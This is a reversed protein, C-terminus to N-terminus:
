RLDIRYLKEDKVALYEVSGDRAFSLKRTIVNDFLPGLLDNVVPGEKDDRVVVYGDIKKGAYAVHNGDASFVPTFSNADDPVLNELMPGHQGEFFVIYGKVPGDPLKDRTLVILKGSKPAFYAKVVEYNSQKYEKGDVFLLKSKENQALYAFRKSDDSWFPGSELQANIAPSEKGDTVVAFSYQDIAKVYSLRQGDPSFFPVKFPDNQSFSNFGEGAHDNDVFGGMGNTTAAFYALRNGVPAFTLSRVEYLPPGEKGDRVVIQAEFGYRSDDVKAVFAVSTGDASFIPGQVINRYSQSPKGDVFVVQKGDVQAVYAYRKSDPSFKITDNPIPADMIADIPPQEVEDLCVVWKTDRRIAFIFRSSDPSFYPSKVELQADKLLKGDLIVSTRASEGGPEGNNGLYYMRKGNPSLGFLGFRSGGRSLATVSVFQPGSQGDIVVFDKGQSKAVYAFHEGGGYFEFGPHLEDYASSPKGDVVVVVKNDAATGVYAHREGRPSFLIVNRAEATLRYPDVINKFRPEEKGDVVAFTQDGQTAIYGFHKGDSTFCFSVIGEETRLEKGNLVVFCKEDGDKKARYSLSKGDESFTLMDCYGFWKGPTGDWWVRDGFESSPGKREVWACHLGDSSVVFGNQTQPAPGIKSQALPGAQTAAPQSQETVTNPLSGQEKVSATRTPDTKTSDGSTNPTKESPKCGAIMAVLLCLIFRKVAIQNV